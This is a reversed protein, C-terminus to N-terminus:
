GPVVEGRLIAIEELHHLSPLLVSTVAVDGPIDPRVCPRRRVSGVVADSEDVEISHEAALVAQLVIRGLYLAVRISNPLLHIASVYDVYGVNLECAALWVNVGGVHPGKVGGPLTAPFIDRYDDFVVVNNMQHHM